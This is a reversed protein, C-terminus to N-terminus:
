LGKFEEDFDQQLVSLFASEQGSLSPIATYKQLKKLIFEKLITDDPLSPMINNPLKTM